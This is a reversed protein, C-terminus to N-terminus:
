VPVHFGRDGFGISGLDYEEWLFYGLGVGKQVWVCLMWGLGLGHFGTFWIFVRM